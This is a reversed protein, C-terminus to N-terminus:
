GEFTGCISVEMGMERFMVAKTALALDAGQADPAYAVLVHNGKHRAM